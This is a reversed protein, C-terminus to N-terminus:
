YISVAEADDLTGNNGVVYLAQTRNYGTSINFYRVTRVLTGAANYYKVENYGYAIAIHNGSMIEKYYADSGSAISRTSINYDSMYLAVPTGGDIAATVGDWDLAGSTVYSTYSVSRGRGTVYSTFGTHFQAQSTGNEITNTGMATYLTNIVAQKQTINAAMPLYTYINGRLMGVTCDPILEDYYRDYFGLLNAGAVNACTNTISSDTNYYNPFSANILYSDETKSAYNITEIVPANASVATSDGYYREAAAGATLTGAGTLAFALAFIAILAILAVTKKISRVM